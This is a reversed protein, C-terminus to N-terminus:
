GYIGLQFFVPGRRCRLSRSQTPAVARPRVGHVLPDCSSPPDCSPVVMFLFLPVSEMRIRQLRTARGAPMASNIAAPVAHDAFSRSVSFGGHVVWGSPEFVKLASHSPWLSRWPRVVYCFVTWVALSRTIAYAPCKLPLITLGMVPTVSVLPVDMTSTVSGRWGLYRLCRTASLPPARM